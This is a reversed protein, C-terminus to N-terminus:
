ILEASRTMRRIGLGMALLIGGAVVIMGIDLGTFPLKSSSVKPSAVTTAAPTTSPASPAAKTSATPQTQQAPTHGLQTQVVGGPTSYGQQASTQAIAAPAGLLMTASAASAVIKTTYRM